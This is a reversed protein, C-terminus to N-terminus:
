GIVRKRAAHQVAPKTHTDKALQRLDGATVWDLLRIAAGTPTKPNRVLAIAIEPRQAWDRREAITGLLEPAMATMKAIALVEDIGLGTNRLVYPHLMKNVDRMIRGREEKTGYLASHIRAAIDNTPKASPRAPQAPAAASARVEHTGSAVARAAEVLPRVAEPEFTVAVGAGPLLQVVQGAVRVSGAFETAIELEVREFLSLGAPPEVPVLVGGHRFQTEDAAILDDPRAYAIALLM